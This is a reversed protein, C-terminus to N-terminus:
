AADDLQPVGAQAHGGCSRDLMWRCPLGLEWKAAAECFSSYSVLKPTCYQMLQGVILPGIVTYTLEVLVAAYPAEGQVDLFHTLWLPTIFIGIINGIVANVLAAAENGAAAATFVVNTSVTTPMSAMVVMGDALYQDFSSRLLGLSVGHGIAPILGLSIGQVLLHIPLDGVASLLVQM